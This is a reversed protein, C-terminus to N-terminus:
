HARGATAAAPIRARELAGRLYGTSLAGAWSTVRGLTNQTTESDTVVADGEDLPVFVFWGDWRSDPRLLAYARAVFQRGDDGAVISCYQQIFRVIVVSSERQSIPAAM